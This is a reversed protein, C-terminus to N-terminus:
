SAGRGFVDLLDDEDFDSPIGPYVAKDRSNVIGLIPGHHQGVNKALNWTKILVAQAMALVWPAAPM